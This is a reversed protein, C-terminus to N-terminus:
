RQGQKQKLGVIAVGTLFLVIVTIIGWYSYRPPNPKHFDEPLVPEKGNFLYVAGNIEDVVREGEKLGLAAYGFSEAGIPENVKSEILKMSRQHRLTAGDSDYLTLVHQEPVIVGDQRRYEIDCKRLPVAANETFSSINFGDEWRCTYSDVLPQEIPGRTITIVFTPESLNGIRKVGLMKELQQRDDPHELLWNAWVGLVEDASQGDVSFLLRPDVVTSLQLNKGKSSQKRFAVRGGEPSLRKVAPMNNIQGLLQEPDMHLFHESTLVSRQRFTGIPGKLERGTSKELLTPPSQAELTTFLRDGPIDVAFRMESSTVQLIPPTFADIKAQRFYDEHAESIVSEDVVTYRGSWSHLKESETRIQDVVFRLSALREDFDSIPNEDAPSPLAQALITSVVALFGLLRSLRVRLVVLSTRLEAGTKRIRSEKAARASLIM